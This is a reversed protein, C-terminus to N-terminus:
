WSSLSPAAADGTDRPHDEDIVEDAVSIGFDTALGALGNDWGQGIARFRWSQDRRYLEGFLLATEVSVDAMDFRLVNEGASDRLVLHLDTLDGFTGADVSGALAVAHVDAALGELDCAVRAESHDEAVTNGLYRVAGEPSSPQNYFIMDADSRVRGSSTLLLASLDVEHSGDRDAWAIVAQYQLGAGPLKVNQGKQVAATHM